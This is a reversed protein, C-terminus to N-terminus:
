GGIGETSIWMEVSEGAGFYVRIRATGTWDTELVTVTLGPKVVICGVDLLHSMAPHDNKAVADLMQDYYDETVCAPYGGLTTGANATSAIALLALILLIQRM